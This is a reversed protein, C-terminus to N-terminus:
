LNGNRKVEINEFWYYKETYAVNRLFMKLTARAEDESEFEKSHKQRVGDKKYSVTLKVKNQM